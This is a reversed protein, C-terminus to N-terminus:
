STTNDTLLETVPHVLYGIRGPGFSLLDLKYKWALKMAKLATGDGVFSILLTEKNHKIDKFENINIDIHQFKINKKNLYDVM